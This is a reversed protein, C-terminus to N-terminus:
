AHLMCVVFYMGINECDTEECDSIIPSGEPCVEYLDEEDDDDADSDLESSEQYHGTSPMM